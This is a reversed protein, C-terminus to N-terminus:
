RARRRRETRVPSETCRARAARFSVELESTVIQGNARAKELSPHSFPMGPAFSLRETSRTLIVGGLASRWGAQLLRALVDPAIQEKPRADHLVVRANARVLRYVLETNSVGLGIVDIRRGEMRSFFSAASFLMIDSGQLM